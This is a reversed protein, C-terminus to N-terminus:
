DRWWRVLEPVVLALLLGVALVLLVTMPLSLRRNLWRALAWILPDLGEPM